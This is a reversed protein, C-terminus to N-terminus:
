FSGFVRGAPAKGQKKKGRAPGGATIGPAPAVEDPKQERDADADGPSTGCGAGECDPTNDTASSGRLSGLPPSVDFRAASHVSAAGTRVESQRGRTRMT